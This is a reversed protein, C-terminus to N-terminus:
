SAITAGIEVAATTSGKLLHYSLHVKSKLQGGRRGGGGMSRQCAM